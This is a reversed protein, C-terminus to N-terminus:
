ALMFRLYQPTHTARTRELVTLHQIPIFTIHILTGSEFRHEIMSRSTSM